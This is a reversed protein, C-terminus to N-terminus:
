ISFTWNISDRYITFDSIADDDLNERLAVLFAITNILNNLIEREKFLLPQENCEYMQADM